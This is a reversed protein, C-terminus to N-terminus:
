AAQQKIIQREIVLTDDELQQQMINLLESMHPSQYIENSLKHLRKNFTKINM